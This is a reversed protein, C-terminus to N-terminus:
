GQFYDPVSRDLRLALDTKVDFKEDDSEDPSLEWTEGRTLRLAYSFLAELNRKDVPSVPEYWPHLLGELRWLALDEWQKDIFHFDWERRGNGNDAVAWEVVSWWHWDVWWQMQNVATTQPVWDVIVEWTDTIRVNSLPPLNDWWGEVNAVAEVQQKM